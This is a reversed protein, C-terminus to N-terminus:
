IHVLFPWFQGNFSKVFVVYFRLWIADVGVGKM